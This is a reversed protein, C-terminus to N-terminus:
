KVKIGIRQLFSTTKVPKKTTTTTKTIVPGAPNDTRSAILVTPTKAVALRAKTNKRYFEASMESDLIKKAKSFEAKADEQEKLDQAKKAKLADLEARIQAIGQKAIEQNAKKTTFAKKTEELDKYKDKYGAIEKEIEAELATQTKGKTVGLTAYDKYTKLIAKKTSELFNDFEASSEINEAESITKIKASLDKKFDAVLFDKFAQKNVALQKRKAGELGWEESRDAITKSGAVPKGTKPDTKWEGTEDVVDKSFAGKRSQKEKKLAENRNRITEQDENLIKTKAKKLEYEAESVSDPGTEYKEQQNEALQLKVKLATKDAKNKLTIGRNVLTQLELKKTFGKKVSRFADRFEENEAFELLDITIQDNPDNPNKKIVLKGKEDSNEFLYKALTENRKISDKLEKLESESGTKLTELFNFQNDAEPQANFAKIKETNKMFTDAFEQDVTQDFATKNKTKLELLGNSFSAIFQTLKKSLNTIAKRVANKEKEVTKIQEIEAVAEQLWDKSYRIDKRFSLSKRVAQFVTKTIEKDSKKEIREIAKNYDPTINKPDKIGNEKFYAQTNKESNDKILAKVEKIRQILVDREVDTSLYTALEIEQCNSKLFFVLYFFLM